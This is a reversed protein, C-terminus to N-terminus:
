WTSWPQRVVLLGPWMSLTYSSWHVAGASGGGVTGVALRPLAGDQIDLGLLGESSSPNLESLFYVLFTM